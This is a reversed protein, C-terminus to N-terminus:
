QDQRETADGQGVMWVAVQTRSNFGLKTLIRQVHNEVTRPSLVLQQAIEKNSLGAAVQGAIELERATLGASQRPLQAPTTTREELAYALTQELDFGAGIRAAADYKEPGLERRVREVTRERVSIIQKARYSPSRDQEWLKEAAGLLTAARDTSGIAATIWALLDLRPTLPRADRLHRSVALGSLSLRLAAPYDGLFYKSLAKAQMVWASVSRDGVRDCAAHCEEMLAWAEEPRDAYALTLALHVRAVNYRADNVGAAEFAAVADVLQSEAHILDGDIFSALGIMHKANAAAADDGQPIAEDLCQRALDKAQENRRGLIAFLAATWLGRNREPSPRVNAVLARDLWDAGEDLHSASSWYAWLATVIEIARTSDPDSLSHEIAARINAREVEFRDLWEQQNPGFWEDRGARTLELVWEAHADRLGDPPTSRNWGYARVSDLLKFRVGGGSRQRLLISKALLGSLSPLIDKTELDDTRCVREAAALDFGGSFVSCRMWLTQEKPPCLDFSWDLTAELSAHRDPATRSRTLPSALQEDLRTLMDRVTFVPVQLAALEIALPLGDLRTCIAAIDPRNEPSVYFDAVVASAREAFIQVAAAADAAPASSRPDTIQFPEVVYVREGPIGLPERSTGLIKLAETQALLHAVLEACEDVVRECTDLVLLAERRGLTGLLADLQTGGTPLPGALTAVLEDTLLHPNDLGALDIFLVGDRFTRRMSNAVQVAVRTKGVGGPGTLTVLRSGTLLRRVDATERRRGVFPTQDVPLRAIRPSPVPEVGRVRTLFVRPM